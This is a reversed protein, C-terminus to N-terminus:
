KPLGEQGQLTGSAHLADRNRGGWTNHGSSRYVLDIDDLLKDLLDNDRDSIAVPPFM